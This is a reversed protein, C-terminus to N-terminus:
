SHKMYARARISLQLGESFSAVQKINKRLRENEMVIKELGKVKSELKSSLEAEGQRKLTDYDIQFLVVNIPIKPSPIM